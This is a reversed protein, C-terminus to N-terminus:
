AIFIKSVQTFQVPGGFIKVKERFIKALNREVNGAQLHVPNPNCTNPLTALARM